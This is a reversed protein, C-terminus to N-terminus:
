RELWVDIHTVDFENSLEAKLEPEFRLLDILSHLNYIVDIVPHKRKQRINRLVDNIFNCYRMHQTEICDECTLGWTRQMVRQNIYGNNMRKDSTPSNHIRLYTFIGGWEEQTLKALEHTENKSRLIKSILDKIERETM